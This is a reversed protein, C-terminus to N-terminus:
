FSLWMVVSLDAVPLRTEFAQISDLNTGKSTGM